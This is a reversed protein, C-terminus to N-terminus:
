LVRWKGRAVIVENPAWYTSKLPFLTDMIVCHLKCSSLRKIVLFRDAAEIQATSTDQIQSVQTWLDAPARNKQGLVGTRDDGVHDGEGSGM